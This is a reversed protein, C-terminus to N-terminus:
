PFFLSGGCSDKLSGTVSKFTNIRREFRQLGLFAFVLAEKFEITLEDPIYVQVGEDQILEVLYKNKAGGGSILVKKNPDSVARGIQYAIHRCITNMIDKPSTKSQDILPLFSSFVFERGISKPANSRYYSLQNLQNFLNENLQGSAAIKGNKDFDLDFYKKSYHNLLMNCPSIDYALISDEQISINCIGGLNLCYNFDPFLLHDGFPVLPAGQGGLAVDLSRFDSVVPLGTEAAICSGHGLQFTFAREIQHYITHGHSAILDIKEKNEELFDNSLTGILKGYLFHLRILEEGNLSPAEELIKLWEKSYVLTNAKLIQYEWKDHKREFKTLCFDIGDLSTGSM